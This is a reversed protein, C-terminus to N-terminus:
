EHDGGARAALTRLRRLGRSVRQRVVAQSCDLDAAIGAYPEEDLVRRRIAEREDLPLQDLSAQLEGEVELDEVGVLADESVQVPQMQLNRRAQDAVQGRRWARRLENQAITWLWGAASGRDSDFGRIGALASAFTEATLDFAAENDTVRSRMYATVARVHRRYFEAFADGDGTRAADLLDEDTM